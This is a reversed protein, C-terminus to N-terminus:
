SSPTIFTSVSRLDIQLNQSRRDRRGGRINRSRGLSCRRSHDACIGYQSARVLERRLQELPVRKRMAGAATLLGTGVLLLSSPEPVPGLGDSIFTYTVPNTANVYGPQGPAPTYFAGNNTEDGIEPIRVLNAYFAQPPGPTDAGDDFGDINDSYFLLTGITGDPAVENPNFRIVDLFLGNSDVLLVDGATLAPPSFMSYTM